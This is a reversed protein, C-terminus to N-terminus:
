HNKGRKAASTKSSARNSPRKRPKRSSPKKGEANISDRKTSQIANMPPYLGVKRQLFSVVDDFVAHFHLSLALADVRLCAIGAEELDAQQKFVKKWEDESEGYNEIVVLANSDSISGGKLGISLSNNWITAKNRSAEYGHSSLQDFLRDEAMSRIDQKGEKFGGLSTHSQLQNYRMFIQRKHDDRKIKELTFSSFIVSQRRHRTTAVNWLRRRDPDNEHPVKSKDSVCGILIIDREQGQFDQPIAVKINHRDVADTGHMNELPTLMNDLEEKFPKVESKPGMMIVGITLVVQDVVDSSIAEQVLEYVFQMMETKGEKGGKTIKLCLTAKSISPKYLVMRNGYVEKNSWSMGDPPCRFHDRLTSNSQPFSNQCVDFLSNGDGPMFLDFIELDGGCKELASRSEESLDDKPLTQRSDGIVVAKKARGLITLATSSPSQSAEDAIVFDFCHNM